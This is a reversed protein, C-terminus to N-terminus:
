FRRRSLSEGRMRRRQMLGPGAEVLQFAIIGILGNLAAQALLATFQVRLSRTEVLAALAQFCLDHVITAAVFMIFRPLPQSVIFQAGLVGVLFGILTKAFGGIGIIGGSLADQVLGGIAGTTLGMVPGFALAVYVVAVLVLNIVAGGGISMGALTSQLTLAGAM